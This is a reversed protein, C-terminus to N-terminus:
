GGQEARKGNAAASVLEIRECCLTGHVCPNLVVFLRRLDIERIRSCNGGCRKSPAVLTVANGPLVWGSTSAAIDCREFRRIGLAGQGASIEERAVHVPLGLSPQLALSAMGIVALPIYLAQAHFPRAVRGSFLVAGM